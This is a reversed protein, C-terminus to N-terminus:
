ESKSTKETWILGKRTDMTACDEYPALKDVQSHNIHTIKFKFDLIVNLQKVIRQLYKAPKGDSKFFSSMFVM